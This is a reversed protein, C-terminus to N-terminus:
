YAIELKRWLELGKKGPDIVREVRLWVSKGGFRSLDVELDTWRMPGFLEPPLGQPPTRSVIGIKDYYATGDVQVFAMESLAAGQEIGLDAVNVQLRVWRGAPPLDGLRRPTPAPPPEGFAQLDGWAVTHELKGPRDARGFKLQIARPPDKPDLWVHAFLAAGAASILKYSSNRFLKQQIGKGSVMLSRDGSHVPDPKRAWVWGGEERAGQPVSDELWPYELAKGSPAPIEPIFKSALTEGNGRVAVTWGEVGDSGLQLRLRTKGGAPVKVMRGWQTGVHRQSKTFFVPGAGPVEQVFPEKGVRGSDLLSWGPFLTRAVKAKLNTRGPLWSDLEGGSNVLGTVERGPVLLFLSRSASKYEGAFVFIGDETSIMPGALFGKQAGSLNFDVIWSALERGDASNVWSLLGLAGWGAAKMEDNRGVPHLTLLRQENGTVLFGKGSGQSREWVISGDKLDLALLRKTASVIVKGSSTGLVQLLDRIPTKWNLRGTDTRLSIVSEDAPQSVVVQKGAFLPREPHHLYWNSKKEFKAWPQKRVWLLRGRLDVCIVIGYGSAVLRDASRGVQFHRFLKAKSDRFDVLSREDLVEGTDRALRTFLLETGLDSYSRLNFLVVDGEILFPDSAAQDLSSFVWKQVGDALGLCELRPGKRTLMRAFVLDGSVLPRMPLLPLERSGGRQNGALHSWRLEGGPIGYARLDNRDNVLLYDGFVTLAMQRATWDTKNEPISPRFDKYRKDFDFRSLQRVTYVGTAPLKRSADVAPSNDFGVEESQFRQMLDSVMKEFAAPELTLDGFRVKSKPPSGVDRGSFAAALRERAEILPLISLQANKRARRYYGEALLSEGMGLAQDGLWLYAEVSSVTGYFQRTVADVAEVDGRAVSRKLRLEGLRSYNKQLARRMDPHEEFAIALALRWSVLLDNDQMAPLLGEIFSNDSSTLIRCADDFAGSKISAEFEALTNYGEKSYETVLPHRVVQVGENAPNLGRQKMVAAEALEVAEKVETQGALWAAARTQPYGRRNWYRIERCFAAVADWDATSLYSLLERRLLSRPLPHMGKASISPTAFLWPKVLSFAKKEGRRGALEGIRQYCSGVYSVEVQPEGSGARGPVLYWNDTFLATEHVLALMSSLPIDEDSLVSEILGMFLDPSLNSFEPKRVCSVACARLWADLRTGPPRSNVAVSIWDALEGGEGSPLEPIKGALEQPLFDLLSGPERIELRSLTIKREQEQKGNGVLRLGVTSFPRLGGPLVRQMTGVENWYAGDNSLFLRLVTRGSVLKLWQGSGWLPVIQSRIPIQQERPIANFDGPPVYSMVGGTERHLVFGVGYLPVGKEDGLFVATGPTLSEFRLVVEKFLEKGAAVTIFSDASSNEVEGSLTVGQGANKGLATKEPLEGKWELKSLAAADFVQAPRGARNRAKVVVSQPVVGGRYMCIGSVKVNGEIFVERPPGAMPARMLEHDGRLVLLYGEQHRLEFAVQDLGRVLDLPGPDKKVQQCGYLRDAKGVHEEGERVQRYASLFGGPSFSLRVGEKGRWLHILVPPQHEFLALRLVGGAPWTPRLRYVGNLTALPRNNVRQEGIRIDKKIWVAPEFWTRLEDRDPTALPDVLERFRTYEFPLVQDPELLEAVREEPPLEEKKEEPPKEGVVPEEGPKPQPKAPEAPIEKKRPKEPAPAETASSGGAKAAENPPAQEKRSLFIFGFIGVLVVIVAVNALKTVLAARSAAAALIEDVPVEVRSLAEALGQEFELKRSLVARFKKSKGLLVLMEATEERSFELPHKEELLKLLDKEAM